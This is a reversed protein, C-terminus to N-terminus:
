SRTNEGPPPVTLVPCAAARVIREAVSGFVFTRWASAGRTATIILDVESKEALRIIEHAADGHAVISRSAVESPVREQLLEDLSQEASDSLGQQYAGVDFGIPGAPAAVTPVPSVVHVVLLEAQFHRAFEVAVKLAEASPESFDTPCLIRKIPLM